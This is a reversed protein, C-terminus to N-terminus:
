LVAREAELFVAMLQDADRDRNLWEKVCRRFIDKLEADSGNEIAGQVAPRAETRNAKPSAPM